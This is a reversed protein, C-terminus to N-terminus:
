KEVITFVMSVPMKRAKGDPGSAVIDDIIIKQGKNLSKIIQEQVSTFKGDNSLAEMSQNNGATITSLAFSAVKIPLDFEASEVTAIIGGAKLLTEKTIEGGKILRSSGPLPNLAVVPEPMFKVRFAREQVPKGKASVTIVAQGPTKPKVVYKGNSGEIIGNDTKVEVQDPTYGSVSINVPNEIGIYLVNMKVTEVATVVQPNDSVTQGNVCGIGLLLLGTIPAIFLLKFKTAPAPNMTSMMLFRKKILSHNLASSVPVYNTEIIHNLLLQQYQVKDIGANLVGEDALYEHVLQMANRMKWIFPNFWMLALLLEMLLTDFSHLQTAHVREHALVKEMDNGDIHAKNVFVWKFFSFPNKFSTNWVIQVDGAKEKQSKRYCALLRYCHICLRVLLFFTISLYVYMAIAFYDVPARDPVTIVDGQQVMEGQEVIGASNNDVTPQDPPYPIRITLPSTPMVLSVLMAVVFYLRITKVVTKNALLLKYFLFFISLCISAIIIYQIYAQM